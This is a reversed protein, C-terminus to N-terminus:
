SGDLWIGRIGVRESYGFLTGDAGSNGATDPEVIIEVADHIDQAEALGTLDDVSIDWPRGAITLKWQPDRRRLAAVFSMLRDLRKNSAFRGLTLITKVPAVSSANAYKSVNVGNEICVIGGKRIRGFLDHDAVSVAAVGDYWALSMRTITFFYLRKLRAAYPTHFYGGHTSVVLKKRHLPKSWALYDFFFDIAHVHVIDADRIFNIASFALPYRPSGFFPVRVVEAGGIEDRAPLVGDQMTKFLRNLTIIRVQHGASVQASALEQVVSEIGGVAPHFQRVVHVINM